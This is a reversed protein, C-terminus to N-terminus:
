KGSIKRTIYSLAKRGFVIALVFGIIGAVLAIYDSAASEFAAISTTAFDVPLTIAASVTNMGFISSLVELM